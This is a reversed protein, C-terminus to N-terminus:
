ASLFARQVFWYLGAVVTAASIAWRVRAEWPIRKLLVLLLFAPIVFIMQGLEVGLNFGFLSVLLNDRPIGVERLIDAFGMGHILGFLFTVAWRSRQLKTPDKGFLNEAAVWAISLAIGSEIFRGPLHILNLATLSLTISHAVTFATIVKLLYGLGGGLMLLALLFLLHDYGSLIHEMGLAIFNPTETHSEGGASLTFDRKEPTFVTNSVKLTNSVQEGHILTMLNSANPATPIFLDYRIRLDGIPKLWTYTLGLTSHSKRSLGPRDPLTELNVPSVALTGAKGESRLRIKESLFRELQAKHTRVEEPSLRGSHDDDAFAVLGTPLTLTMQVDKEGVTVESVALDAWHAYASISFVALLGLLLRRM